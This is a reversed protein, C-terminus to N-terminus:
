DLSLERVALREVIERAAALEGLLLRCGARLALAANDERNAVLLLAAEFRGLSYLAEALALREADDTPPAEQWRRVAESWRGCAALASASPAGPTQRAPASSLRRRVSPPGAVWPTRQVGRCIGGALATRATAFEPEWLFPAAEFLLGIADDSSMPVLSTALIEELQRAARRAEGRGAVRAGARFLARLLESLRAQVPQADRGRHVGLGTLGGRADIRASQWGGTVTFGSADCLSLLAAGQLLVGLKARDTCRAAGIPLGSASASRRTNSASGM